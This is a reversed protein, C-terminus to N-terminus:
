KIKNPFEKIKNPFEKIKNPFEKIKINRNWSFEKIKNPFEKIKSKVNFIGPRDDLHSGPTGHIKASWNVRDWGNSLAQYSM